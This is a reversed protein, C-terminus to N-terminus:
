ELILLVTILGNDYITRKKSINYVTSGYEFEEGISLSLSPLNNGTLKKGIGNSDGDPFYIEYNIELLTTETM